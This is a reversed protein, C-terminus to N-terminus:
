SIFDFLWTSNKQLTIIEEKVAAKWHQRDFSNVAQSFSEPEIEALETLHRLPKM